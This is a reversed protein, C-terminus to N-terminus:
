RRGRLGGEIKAAVWARERTMQRHTFRRPTWGLDSLEADRRRDSEFAKRTGHSEWSDAEVILRQEPWAFDPRYPGIPHQCIPRPLGFDDCIAILLEEFENETATSGAEHEGLLARLRAAGPRRPRSDIARRLQAATTLTRRVAEDTARELARRDSTAALDILTRPVDTAPINRVRTVEGALASRHVRLGARRQRGGPGTVTVHVPASCGPTLAWLEAASRHSVAARSGLALHAAMCIGDRGLRTGLLYVGRHVPRLWGLAVWRKIQGASVGLGLLQERSVVGHQREALARLRALLDPTARKPRM